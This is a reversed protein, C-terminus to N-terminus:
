GTENPANPPVYGNGDYQAQFVDTNTCPVLINEISPNNTSITGTDTGTGYGTYVNWNLVSTCDSVVTTGQTIFDYDTEHSTTTLTLNGTTQDASNLVTVQSGVIPEGGNYSDLSVTGPLYPPVNAYSCLRTPDSLTPCHDTLIWASGALWCNVFDTDSLQPM